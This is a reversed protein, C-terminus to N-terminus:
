AFRGLKNRERVINYPRRNNSNVKPRVWRINGPEYHGDNNIRDIQLGEIQELKTIKLQNTVHKIFDTASQFLCKIGRQGYHKYSDNKSNTCRSVMGRFIRTLHGKFSRCYKKGAKRSTEKGKETHYYKIAGKRTSKRGEETQQYQRMYAAKCRKCHVVLGDKTYKDRYFFKVTAPYEIGCKTCTKKM